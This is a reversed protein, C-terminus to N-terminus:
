LSPGHHCCVGIGLGGNVSFVRRMAHFPGVWYYRVFRKFEATEAQQQPLPLQEGVSHRYLQARTGEIEEEDQQPGVSRQDGFVLKHATHPWPDNDGVLIQLNLDKLQAFSKAVVAIQDARFKAPPVPKSGRNV